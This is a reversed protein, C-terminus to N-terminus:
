PPTAVTVSEARPPARRTRLNGNTAYRLSPLTPYRDLEICPVSRRLGTPGQGSTRRTVPADGVAPNAIM